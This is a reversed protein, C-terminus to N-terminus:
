APNIKTSEIKINIDDLQQLLKQQEELLQRIAEERMRIIEDVSLM